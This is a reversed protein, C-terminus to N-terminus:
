FSCGRFVQNSLLGRGPQLIPKIVSNIIPVWRFSVPNSAIIITITASARTAQVSESSEVAVEAGAVAVEAGAVVVESDDGVVVVAGGAVAVSGGVSVGVSVSTGAGVVGAGVVGGAV